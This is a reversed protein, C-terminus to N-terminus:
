FYLFSINVALAFHKPCNYLSDNSFAGYKRMLMSIWIPAQKL